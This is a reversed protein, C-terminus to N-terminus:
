FVNNESSPLDALDVSAMLLWIGNYYTKTEGATGSGFLAGWSKASIAQWTAYDSAANSWSYIGKYTWLDGDRLDGTPEAEQIYHHISTDALRDIREDFAAIAENYGALEDLIDQYLGDFRETTEELDNYLQQSMNILETIDTVVSGPDIYTDTHSTVVKCHGMFVTKKSSSDSVQIVIACRGEQGYCSSELVVSAVNYLIRTSNLIITEGSGERVFYGIVTHGILDVPELGNVLEVQFEDARNDSYFLTEPLYRPTMPQSIDVRYRHPVIL